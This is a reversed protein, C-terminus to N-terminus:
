RMQDIPGPLGAHNALDVQTHADIIKRGDMEILLMPKDLLAAKSAFKVQVPLEKIGIQHAQM